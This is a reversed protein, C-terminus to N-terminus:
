DLVDFIAARDISAPMVLASWYGREPRWASCRWREAVHPDELDRIPEREAGLLAGFEVLTPSRMLGDGSAKLYAEKRVWTSHFFDPRDSEDLAAFAARERPSMVVDAVGDLDSVPRMQEVDIGVPGEQTVAYLALDGSHSVNFHLADRDPLPGLEPKGHEGTRLPIEVPPLDLYVGLIRRLMARGTMFGIRDRDFRFRMARMREIEDLVAADAHHRFANLWVIWVHVQGAALPPATRDRDIRFALRPAKQMM